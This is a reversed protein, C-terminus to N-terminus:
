VDVKVDSMFSTVRKNDCNVMLPLTNVFMGISEYIGLTDRGNDLVNFLVTNDGTFRSLTYAFVGTFLINETIANFKLFDGIDTKNVSLDFSYVGSENDGIDTLFPNVEDAESLMSEYFIEAEDYSQTEVIEEDYVSSKIFADDLELPKGELLDFLHQKFVLSSFGDFILHHFVAVLILEGGDKLLLFRSLNNGLDFPNDMFNLIKDADYEDLYEINLVNGVKLYPAGDIIDVYTKLVPHVDFMSMLANKVDDSSYSDSINIIIPLNYSENKEYRQIDLYVNLQSENLPCGTDLLYKDWDFNILESNAIHESIKEPTGLSVLDNITLNFESLEGVIKMAIVSTGGLQIFDDFISINKQNFADEFCNIVIEELENRPGVFDVEEFEIPPLRRVDVKGNPNLPFSDIKVYFSPIMYHPLNIKLYDNLCSEDIEEESSYYAILHDQHNVEGVVVKVLNLGGYELITSEIEEPEIRFGNLNIQDDKRGVYVINGDSNFYGLDKTFYANENNFVGYANNTQEVNNFYQKSVVPGSIVIEGVAGVPLQKRNSDLIYVKSNGFPKGIVSYNSYDDNLKNIIVSGSTETCGYANLLVTHNDKRIESKTLSSGALVLNDLNLDFNNYLYLGLDQTSILVYCHYMMLYKVIRPISEKTTERIIFAESGNILAAYIPLSAVFTFKALCMFNGSGGEPVNFYNLYNHNINIINRQTIEVGKPIGTSGSTYMIIATDDLDVDIETLNGTRKTKLSNLQISEVNNFVHDSEQIIYKSSSINIIAQIYSEPFTDDVPITIAGLKMLCITLLPVTYSRSLYLIIKDYKTINYEKQLIYTTSNILEGLEEYSIRNIEDNIAFHKPYKKVSDLIIDPLLKDDIEIDTSKSFENILELQRGCVIDVDCCAQNVDMLCAYILSDINELMYDIEIRTFTNIDYEVEIFDNFIIFNISSDNININSDNIANVISYNFIYDCYDPYSERVYEKLNEISNDLANNMINKVSIIFELFSYDGDYKIKFFTDNPTLNSYSFIIGESGSIRSLYLSIISTYYEFFSIDNRTLFESLDVMNNSFHYKVRDYIKSCNIEKLFNYFSFIDKLENGWYIDWM